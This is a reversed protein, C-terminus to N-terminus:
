MENQNMKLNECCKLRRVSLIAPAVRGGEIKQDGICPDYSLIARKNFLLYPIQALIM